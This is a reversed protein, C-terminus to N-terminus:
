QNALWRDFFSRTIWLRWRMQLMLTLYRQYVAGIIYATALGCFQLLLPGFSAFDKNQIAEFFARNWQNYLVNLFVLVLTLLIIAALLIRARWREESGWYPAALAWVRRLFRAATALRVLM